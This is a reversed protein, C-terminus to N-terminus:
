CAEKALVKIIIIVTNMICLIKDTSFMRLACVCMCVPM